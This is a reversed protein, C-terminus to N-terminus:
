PYHTRMDAKTTCPRKKIEDLTNIKDASIDNQQFVKKYYPANSAINITKKLRELQLKQLDERNMTEIDEEWYSSNMTQQINYTKRIYTLTSIIM